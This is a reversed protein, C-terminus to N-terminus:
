EIASVWISTRVSDVFVSRRETSKPQNMQEAFDLATFPETLYAFDLYSCGARYAHPRVRRLESRFFDDRLSLYNATTSRYFCRKDESDSGDQGSQGELGGAVWDRLIPMIRQARAEPLQGWVGRNYIVYDPASPLVDRLTGNRDIAEPFPQEWDYDNSRTRNAIHDADEPTRRCTGEFSCNTFHYGRLPKPTDGWGVEFAFSLTARSHANVYLTNDNTEGQDPGTPRHSKCEMRGNMIGGRGDTGGGGLSGYYDNWSRWEFEVCINPEAEYSTCTPHGTENLHRCPEHPSPPRRFRPPFSGRELLHALSLHLYRTLSDGVMALHKSALCQNAERSSYRKLRCIDALELQRSGDARPVWRVPTGHSTLFTGDQFVSNPGQMLEDCAPLLLMSMASSGGDNRPATTATLNHKNNNSNRTMMNEVLAALESLRAELQDSTAVNEDEKRTTENSCGAGNGFAISPTPPPARRLSAVSGWGSFLVDRLALMALLAAVAPVARIPRLPSM